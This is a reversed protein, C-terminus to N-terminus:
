NYLYRATVPYKREVRIDVSVRIRARYGFLLEQYFKSFHFIRVTQNINTSHQDKLYRFADYESCVPLVRQNTLRKPCLLDKKGFFQCYNGHESDFGTASRINM